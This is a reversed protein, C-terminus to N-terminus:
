VKFKFIKLVNNIFDIRYEIKENRLIFMNFDRRVLKVIIRLFDLLIEKSYTKVSSKAEILWPNSDIDIKIIKYGYTFATEVVQSIIDDVITLSSKEHLGKANTITTMNDISILTLAIKHMYFLSDIMYYLNLIDDRNFLKKVRKNMPGYEVEVEDGICRYDGHAAINRWQSISVGLM